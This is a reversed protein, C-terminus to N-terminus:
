MGDRTSPHITPRTEKRERGEQRSIIGNAEIGFRRPDESSLRLHLLPSFDTLTRLISQERTSRPSTTRATKAGPYTSDRHVVASSIQWLTDESNDKLQCRM